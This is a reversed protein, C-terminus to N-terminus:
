MKEEYEARGDWQVKRRKDLEGQKIKNKGV